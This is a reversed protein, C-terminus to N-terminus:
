ERLIVFKFEIFKHNDSKTNNRTSGKPNVGPSPQSSAKLARPATTQHTINGASHKSGEVRKPVLIKRTIPIKSIKLVM